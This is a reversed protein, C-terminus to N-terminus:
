LKKIKLKEDEKLNKLTYFDCYYDDEVESSIIGCYGLANKDQDVRYTRHM